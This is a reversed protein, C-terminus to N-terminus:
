YLMRATLYSLLLCISLRHGADHCETTDSFFYLYTYRCTYICIYM